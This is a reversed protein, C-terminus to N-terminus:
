HGGVVTGRLWATGAVTAAVALTGVVDFECQPDVTYGLQEWLPKARDAVAVVGSEHLVNTGRQATAMDVASAFFDADRVAGGDVTNRYIGIDMTCGTGFSGADLELRTVVDNSRVSFFRITSAAEAAATVLTGVESKVRERGGDKTAPNLVRPTADRNTISLSKIADVVFCQRLARLVQREEWKKIFKSSM